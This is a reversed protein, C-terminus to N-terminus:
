PIVFQDGGLRVWGGGVEGGGVVDDHIFGIILTHTFILCFHCFINQFEWEKIKYFHLDLTIQIYTKIRYYMEIKHTYM